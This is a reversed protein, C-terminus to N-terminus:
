TNRRSHPRLCSPAALRSELRRPLGLLWRSGASTRVRANDITRSRYQSKPGLNGAEVAARYCNLAAGEEPPELHGQANPTASKSSRRPIVRVRRETSCHPPM